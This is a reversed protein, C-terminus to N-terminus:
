DHKGVAQMVRDRIEVPTHTVRSLDPANGPEVKVLLFAPRPKQMLNRLTETLEEKTNVRGVWAYGASEAIRELAVHDSISRQGGTSAYTQNDLVFHILNDPKLEGISALIGLNMLASGDGDLIVVQQDKRTIALGLGIAPNLGMSGIMYFNQERDRVTFSERSIMGTAHIMPQTGLTETIQRIADIRKM